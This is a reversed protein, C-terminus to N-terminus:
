GTAEKGETIEPLKVGEGTDSIFGGRVDVCATSFRAAM